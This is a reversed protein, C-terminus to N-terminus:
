LGNGPTEPNKEPLGSFLGAATGAESAQPKAYAMNRKARGPLPM